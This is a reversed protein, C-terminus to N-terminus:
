KEGNCYYFYLVDGGKEGDRVGFGPVWLIGNEDCVLPLTARLRHSLHAGSMLRRVDRTMNGYRYSDGARRPRATLGGMITASDIKTHIFLNYVFTSRNEFEDCPRDFIWIEGRGDGLINRGPSLPIEYDTPTEEKAEGKKAFFLEEDTLHAVLGSPFDTQVEKRGDILSLLATYHTREIMIQGGAQEYLLAILRRATAKELSALLARPLKGDKEHEKFLRKATGCAAEEEERLNQILRAASHEPDPTLEGLRPILERRIYNRPIATDENTSDTVYTAGIEALAALIEARSLTLIPRLYVGRVPPIGCLGRLGSGRLINFVLTELNDTANHATLICAYTPNEALLREFAAYRVERAAEEIGMGREERYAPVDEHAVFLKVGERECLDRCFAEDRDAEEGRIGHHVHFAALPAGTYAAYTVALKLLLVSDAGGSLAVVAGRSLLPEMGEADVSSLFADLAHRIAAGAEPILDTARM